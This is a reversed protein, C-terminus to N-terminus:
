RRRSFRCKLLTYIADLGDVFSIKKGEAATRPDYTIPVEHIRYGALRVKATIEPETDFQVCRLRIKQLVERRFAKYATEMDTLRCGFLINTLSTLFGNALRREWPVKRNKQRFRSGYVVDATGDLIPAVLKPLEAPNLELDADQILVIDGTALSFGMRVAAGKGLNIPSSYATVEGPHEAAIRAVIERTGDASGDDCVIIERALGGFDVALVRSVVEAITDRENFVPIVISLSAASKSKMLIM